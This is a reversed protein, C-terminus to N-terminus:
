VVSKRDEVVLNAAGMAGSLTTQAMANLDATSTNSATQCLLLATSDTAAQLKTELRTAFGYDIAAGGLMLMPVSLFAFLLAVNGGRDQLLHTGNRLRAM